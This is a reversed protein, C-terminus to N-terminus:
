HSRAVRYDGETGYAPAKGDIRVCLRGGNGCPRIDLAAGRRELDAVAETLTDRRLRLAEVEAPSPLLWAMAGLAIAASCGTVALTWLVLRLRLSRRLERLAESARRSESSLALLESQLVRRVEERVASDLDRLQLDLKRLGDDALRQHQQAAELLLGFQLTQNEPTGM